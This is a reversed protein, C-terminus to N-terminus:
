CLRMSEFITSRLLSTDVSVETCKDRKLTSELAQDKDEEPKNEILYKKVTKDLDKFGTVKRGTLKTQFDFAREFTLAKAQNTVCLFTFVVLM